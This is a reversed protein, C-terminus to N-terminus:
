DRIYVMFYMSYVIYLLMGEAYEMIICLHGSHAFSEQIAIINQHQLKRLIEVEKAATNFDYIGEEEIQIKIMKM